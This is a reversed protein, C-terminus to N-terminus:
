TLLKVMLRLKNTEVIVFVLSPVILNRHPFNLVVEEPVSFSNVRTLPMVVPTM